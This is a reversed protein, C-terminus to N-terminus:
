RQRRDLRRILDDRVFRDTAPATPVIQAPRRLHASVVPLHEVDRRDAHPHALMLEDFPATPASRHGTGLCGLTHGRWHLVARPDGRDDEVEVDPSNRDLFRVAAANASSNPVGTECPVTAAILARAAPPSPPNRSDTRAFRAAAGTTFKSSVPSRTWPLSRHTCEAEVPSYLKIVM